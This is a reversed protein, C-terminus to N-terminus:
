WITDMNPWYMKDGKQVNYLSVFLPLRALSCNVRYEEMPHPNTKLQAALARKKVKQRGQLAIYVFFAHFSLARIPVM